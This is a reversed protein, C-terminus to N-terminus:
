GNRQRHARPATIAILIVLLLGAIAALMIDAEILLLRLAEFQSHSM